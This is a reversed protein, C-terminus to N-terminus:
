ISKLTIAQELWNGSLELNKLNELDAAVSEIIWESVLPWQLQNQIKFFPGLLATEKISTPEKFFKRTFVFWVESIYFSCPSFTKWIFLLFIYKNIKQHSGFHLYLFCLSPIIPLYLFFSPTLSLSQYKGPPTQVDARGGTQLSHRRLRFIRMKSYGWPDEGKEHHINLM